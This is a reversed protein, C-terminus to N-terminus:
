RALVGTDTRLPIHHSTTVVSVVVVSVVVVSGKHACREVHGRASGATLGIRGLAPSAPVCYVTCPVRYM